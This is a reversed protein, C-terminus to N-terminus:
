MMWWCEGQKWCIHIGTSNGVYTFERVTEMEDRLKEEQEM